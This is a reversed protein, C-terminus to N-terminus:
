DESIPDGLYVLKDLPVYQVKDNDRNKIKVYGDFFTVVLEGRVQYWTHLSDDVNRFLAIGDEIEIEEYSDQSCASLFLLLLLASLYQAIKMM